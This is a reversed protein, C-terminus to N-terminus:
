RHKAKKHKPGNHQLEEKLTSATLEKVKDYASMDLEDQVSEEKPVNDKDRGADKMISNFQKEESKGSILTIACGSHGARATRGVRHIYTKVFKPSDYSIVFDIKGIDIGRALADTCILVDVKGHTFQSLVKSRKHYIQILLFILIFQLDYNHRGM